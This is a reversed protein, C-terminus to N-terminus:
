TYGLQAIFPPNVAYKMFNLKNKRYFLAFKYLLATDKLFISKRLCYIMFELVFTLDSLIQTKKSMEDSTIYFVRTFVWFEYIDPYKPYKHHKLLFAM